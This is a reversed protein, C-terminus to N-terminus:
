ASGSTRVSISAASLRSHDKAQRGHPTTAKYRAAPTSPHQRGFTIPQAKRGRNNASLQEGLANMITNQGDASGGSVSGSNQPLAIIKIGRATVSLRGSLREERVQRRYRSVRDSTRTDARDAIGLGRRGLHGRGMNGVIPFADIIDYRLARRKTLM